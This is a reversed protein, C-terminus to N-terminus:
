ENDTVEVEPSFFWRQDALPSKGGGSLPHKYAITNATLCLRAFAASSPYPFSHGTRGVIPEGATPPPAM